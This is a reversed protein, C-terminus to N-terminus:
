KTNGIESFPVLIRISTYALFNPNMRTDGEEEENGMLCIM